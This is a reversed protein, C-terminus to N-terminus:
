RCSVEIRREQAFSRLSKKAASDATIEEGLRRILRHWIRSVRTGTVPIEPIGLSSTNHDRKLFRAGELFVVGSITELSRERMRSANLPGRPPTGAGEKVGM